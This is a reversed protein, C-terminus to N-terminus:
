YAPNQQMNPNANIEGVPILPLAKKSNRNFSRAEETLVDHWGRDSENTYRVITEDRRMADFYRQGEGVLEKRRELYIRELTIDAATVLKGADTTRNSIIANLLTAAAEANGANLAAEAGSLYVESLRLIPVNSYCVSSSGSPAPMKNIYVNLGYFPESKDINFSALLVDNRVDQPDSALMDHFAKTVIVDGYGVGPEAYAYAIGERDTWDSNDYIAIEFLMEKRHAITTKDWATAYESTSWLEAPSNQIIDQAIAYAKSWEGKTLYVRVQLAKAAWLNIYGATIDETLAGSNVAENLDQEIVEYCEEVTSRSPKTTSEISSTVIPAGLSAGQDQTYPRGYIRTLDFTAMARLVRAEAAYQAIIDASEEADTMNGEEAAEIIRNARAIVIFPVQWVATSTNFNDETNYEMYYYFSARGSGNDADYQVDEGRVDGYIFMLRGYYNVLSSNGKVAAYLGVRVNGLDDSTKIAESASVGNSPTLDLWNDVCSSTGITLAVVAATTSIYKLIKMIDM